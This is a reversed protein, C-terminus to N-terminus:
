KKHMKIEYIEPWLKGTVFIKNKDQDFMIGNLVADNDNLALKDRLGSLDLWGEVIGNEPNIIVIRNSRYINAYLKGNIYELENLRQININNEHVTIRKREKLTVPDLFYLTATGDSAILSRNDHTLGWGQLPYSLSKILEFTNKDYLLLVKNKWTLQYIKDQFVTIGEAFIKEACNVQQEVKGTQLNVRRLSSRGLKGTGEMIGYLDRHLRAPIM